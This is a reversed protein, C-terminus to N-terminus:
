IAAPVQHCSPRLSELHELAVAATRGGMKTALIVHDRRGAIAKGIREESAGYGRATDFNIGLDLARQIVNVAEDHSPRQIPIGGIGLVRKRALEIM